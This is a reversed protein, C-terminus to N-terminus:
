EKTKNLEREWSFRANLILEAGEKTLYHNLSDRFDRLFFLGENTIRLRYHSIGEAFVAKELFGRYILKDLMQGLVNEFRRSIFKRLMSGSVVTDIDYVCERGVLLMLDIEYGTLKYKKYLDTMVRRHVLFVKVGDMGLISVNAQAESEIKKQRASAKKAQSAREKSM